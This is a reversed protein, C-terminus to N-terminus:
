KKKSLAIIDQINKIKAIQNVTINIKMDKAMDSIISILNLSDLEDGFKLKKIKKLDSLSKIKLHRKLIKELKKDIKNTM